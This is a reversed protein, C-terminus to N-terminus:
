ANCGLKSRVAQIENIFGNLIRRLNEFFSFFVAM